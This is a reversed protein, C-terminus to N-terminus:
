NIEPHTQLFDTIRKFSTLKAADAADIFIDFENEIATIITLQKMSDWSPESDISISEPQRNDALPFVEQFINKTITEIDM